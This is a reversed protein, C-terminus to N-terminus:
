QGFTGTRPGHSNLILACLNPRGITGMSLKGDTNRVSILAHRSTSLHHVTSAPGKVRLTGYISTTM